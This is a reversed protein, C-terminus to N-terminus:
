LERSVAAKLAPLHDCVVSWVLERDIEFYQHVLVHRMGVIKRWPIQTMRDRKADSLGRAAEGIIQLHHVVWVQIWDEQDFADRGRATYKEIREIADRMDLLRQHDDRM